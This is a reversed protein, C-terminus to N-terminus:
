IEIFTENNNFKGYIEVAKIITFDKEWSNLGRFSLVTSRYYLNQPMYQYIPDMDTATVSLEHLGYDDGLTERSSLLIYRAIAELIMTADGNASASVIRAQFNNHIGEYIAGDAEETDEDSIYDGIFDEAPAVSAPIVYWGPMRAEDVGYGQGIKVKNDTLYEVATAIFDAGMADEDFVKAMYAAPDSKITTLGSALAAMIVKEPLLIAM